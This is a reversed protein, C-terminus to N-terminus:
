RWRRRTATIPRSTNEVRPARRGRWGLPRHPRCACSSAATRAPADSGDDGGVRRRQRHRRHRHAMFRFPRRADRSTPRSGTQLDAVINFSNLDADLVQQRRRDAAHGASEEGAHALHTRVARRRARDARALPDRTARAARVFLAATAAAIDLVAAVGEDIWFQTKKRTFTQDFQGRGHGHRGAAAELSRRARRRQLPQGAGSILRVDRMATGLVFKGRLKGRVRRFGQGHQDRRHGSRGDGARQHRADLRLRHAPVRPTLANATFRQKALRTRLAM